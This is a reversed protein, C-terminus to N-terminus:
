QADFSMLLSRLNRSKGSIGLKKRISKRHINVTDVSLNLEEAIEKSTKGEQVMHAVKIERPSLRLRLSSINRLFPSTIRQLNSELFDVNVAQRNTLYDRRINRILPQILQSVNMLMQEELQRKEDDGRKLLVRLATNMEVLNNKEEELKAESKLLEQEIKCRAEVEQQLERNLVQLAHTRKEVLRELRAFSTQLEIEAQKKISIDTNIGVYGIHYGHEDSISKAVGSVWTMRGDAIIMRYELSFNRDSKLMEQWADFVRLRDDPHIGKLWGQGKAEEETLGCMERWCENVYVCDGHEDILYIGAPSLESLTRFRQESARLNEELMKQQTIDIHVGVFRLPKRDGDWEVVKGRAQIWKWAGNKQRMRFESKYVPSHGEIHRRVNLLAEEKDDPHLLDGWTINKASIEQPTFGLIRGWNEGYYIEDDQLNRDFVGDSTADLTLRLRKESDRLKEEAKKIEEINTIILRVSTSDSSGAVPASFISVWIPSEDKQKMRVQINQTQKTALTEGLHLYFIDQHEPVIFPALAKQLLFQRDHDLLSAITFNAEFIIGKQDLSIYGVPAFDYIENYKNRSDLLEKQATRLEENQNELEIQRARLDELAKEHGIASMPLSEGSQEEFLTAGEIHLKKSTM